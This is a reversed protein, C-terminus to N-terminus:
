KGVFPMLTRPPTSEEMTLARHRLRRIRTIRWLLKLSKFKSSVVDKTKMFYIWTKMSSDDIFSVYYINGTLSTSTMSGYM